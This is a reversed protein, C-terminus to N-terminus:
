NSRSPKKEWDSLATEIDLTNFIKLKPLLGGWSEVAKFVKNATDAAITDEKTHEKFAYVQGGIITSAALGIASTPVLVIAQISFLVPFLSAAFGLYVPWIFRQKEYLKKVQWGARSGSAVLGWVGGIVPIITSGLALTM